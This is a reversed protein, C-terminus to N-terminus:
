SPTPGLAHHTHEYGQWPTGIFPFSTLFAKDNGDVGDGILNNPTRNRVGLVANLTPGYGEVVARLEIDTVDDL